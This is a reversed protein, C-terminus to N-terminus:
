DFHAFNIEMKNIYNNSLAINGIGIFRLDSKPM